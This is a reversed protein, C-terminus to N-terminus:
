HKQSNLLREFDDMSKIEEVEGSSGKGRSAAPTSASDARGQNKITEQVADEVAKKMIKDLNMAKYLVELDMPPQLPDINKEIMQEIFGLVEKTELKLNTQVKNINTSFEDERRQQTLAQNQQELAELRRLAEPSMNQKKAADETAQNDLKEILAEETLGESEALKALLKKYKGNEVRLAAFAKSGKDEVPEDPKIEDVKTEEQTSDAPTATSDDTIVTESNGLPPAEETGDLHQQSLANLFEMEQGELM